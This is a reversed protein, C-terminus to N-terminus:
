RSPSVMCSRTFDPSRSRKRLPGLRCQREDHPRGIGSSPRGVFNRGARALRRPLDSLASTVGLERKLKDNRVRRCEQWFSLALPSMRRRPRKSHFKGAAARPRSAAGRLRASRRAPLARRRRRQLHRVSKAPLAGRRDGACHRRCSHPQLGPGAQRHAACQRQTIQVLANPGPRLHRCPAPDRGPAAARASIRGPRSPMLASRPRAGLEARPPTHEDVWEGAHDGYVGVTSLYVIPACTAHTRWRMALAALVPDGSEDPPISM